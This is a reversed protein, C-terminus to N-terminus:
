SWKPESREEFLILDFDFRGNWSVEQRGTQIPQFVSNKFNRNNFANVKVGSNMYKTVTEAASDVELYEGEQLVINFRYEYGGIYVSPQTCPGYIILRFNCEAYHENTISANTLGNAYRYAYKGAYRKNDTSTIDSSKFYYPRERIWGPNSSLVKLTNFMIPLGMKWDSKTSGIIRCKMYAGTDAYLRGEQAELIDEEFAEVLYDVARKWEEQRKPLSLSFDCLVAIKVSFEKVSKRFNSTQNREGESTDYSYTWDLIDGSQFLYPYDSLDIRKGKHNVYYFDM